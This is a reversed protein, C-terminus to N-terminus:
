NTYPELFDMDAAVNVNFREGADVTLTPQITKNRDLITRSVDVLVEGAATRAGGSSGGMLSNNQPVNKEARDALFAVFFSSAFMKFFHNNVDAELGSAGTKDMGMANPLLFSKGNPLIVRQFAFLIRSQGANVSSSCKGVFESGAPLLLTNGVLSDYVDVLSRASIECPLDTNLSRLLVAPITKGQTLVYKGTPAHPYLTQVRQKGGTGQGLWMESKNQAYTPAKAAGVGAAAELQSKLELQEALAQTRTTAPDQANARAKADIMAMLEMPSSPKKNFDIGSGSTADPKSDGSVDFVVLKSADARAMRELDSKKREADADFTNEVATGQSSRKVSEPMVPPAAQPLPMPPPPPAAAFEEDVDRGSGPKGESKQEEVPAAAKAAQQNSKSNTGVLAGVIFVVVVVGLIGLLTSKKIPAKDGHEVPAVLTDKSV